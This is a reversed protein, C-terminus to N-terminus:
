FFKIIGIFFYLIMLRHIHDEEIASNMRKLLSVLVYRM